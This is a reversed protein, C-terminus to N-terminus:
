EPLVWPKRYPRSLLAKAELTAGRLTETAGDWVIRQKSRLAVNGLHSASTSRHGIEVDSIPKQRSKMCELFNRVHNVNHESQPGGHFNMYPTRWTFEGDKVGATEPYVEFGDRDLFMTGNTGFFEIGYQKGEIPRANLERSSYTLFFGPYEFLVEMTDPTERNDRLQLKAGHASVATPAAIADDPILAWHVIDILHTGWDTIKGGAYDWFWRFTRESRNPNWPSKPAPGLWMDWDLAPPPDGDPPNGIGDPFNNEYTWCRAFSVKGLKGNRILDVARQFHPGSRQQTGTQVVRNTSRAVDVMRRGEAITLSLPKEVYVDKGAQCAHICTLAHWHDPTAVIVADIDKIDLVRRYDGFTEPQTKEQGPPQNTQARKVSEKLHDQHVDCIAAVEVEKNRQFVSMDYRGQGGAGILGIRIRDNAGYVRLSSAATAVAGSALFQRRTQGM